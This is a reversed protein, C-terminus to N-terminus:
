SILMIDNACVLSLLISCVHTLSENDVEGTHSQDLSSRTRTECVSTQWSLVLTHGRGM